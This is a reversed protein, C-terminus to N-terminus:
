RLSPFNWGGKPRDRLEDESAWPSRSYPEAEHEAERAEEVQAESTREVSDHFEDQYDDPVGSPLDAFAQLLEEDSAKTEDWNRAESAAEGFTMRHVAILSCAYRLAEHSLATGACIFIAGPAPPYHALCFRFLAEDDYFSFKAEGVQLSMGWSNAPNAYAVQAQSLNHVTVQITM